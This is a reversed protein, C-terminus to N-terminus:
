RLMIDVLRELDEHSYYQIQIAGRKGKSLISVGTGFREQLQAAIDALVPDGTLRRRSITERSVNRLTAKILAETERVSLGRKEIHQWIQVLRGQDPVSLLARGHGESLRGNEIAAQVDPPLELLRTTNAVSSRSGGTVDAVQDQTLGFEDVLRRYARAREVPNLDERRLNEVLAVELAEEDSVERVVAPITTLGAAQAAKLRREGAVVQYGGNAPRAVIPQLVGYRRVSAVLEEFAPGAIEHRPQFPSASLASIELDQVPGAGQVQGMGEAGGAGPILAALGRGLGRKTM